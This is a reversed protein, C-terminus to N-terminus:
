NPMPWNLWKKSTNQMNLLALYLFIHTKLTVVGFGNPLTPLSKTKQKTQQKKKTKKKTQQKKKRKKKKKKLLHTKKQLSCRLLYSWM